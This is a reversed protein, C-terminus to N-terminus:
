GAGRSVEVQYEIGRGTRVTKLLVQDDEGLVGLEEFRDPLLLTYHEAVSVYVLRNQPLLARMMHILGEVYPPKKWATPTAPDVYAIIRDNKTCLVIKSKEPKWEPGLYDSALWDCLFGRCTEPRDPYITCGKGPRCHSCWSGSPKNIEKIGM